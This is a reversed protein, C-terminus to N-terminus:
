TMNKTQYKINSSQLESKDTEIIPIRLYPHISPHIDEEHMHPKKKSSNFQKNM